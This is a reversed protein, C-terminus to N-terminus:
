DERKWDTDRVWDHAPDYFQEDTGPQGGRWKMTNVMLKNRVKDMRDQWELRKDEDSEEPEDRALYYAERYPFMVANADQEITGSERLDALTPRKDDRGEVSRNLQSLLIVAIDENGALNKLGATMEGLVSAENRGNSKPRQMIQLYDIAVAALPGKRKLARVRERVYDVSLMTTDDLIFNQPVRWTLERVRELEEEDMVTGDMRDYSISRGHHRASLFSLSRASMEDRNMEVCMFAFQTEPNKEAAGMMICRALATKGMGPRGGIVILNGPQLGRMRYDTCRLGTMFGRAKGSRKQEDLKASFDEAATRADSVNTEDPAYGKAVDRIMDEAVGAAQHADAEPDVAFERITDAASALERRLSTAVVLKADESANLGWSKEMLEGFYPPGGMQHFAPDLRFQEALGNMTVLEGKDLRERMYAWLRKHFPESFHNPAVVTEIRAYLDNDYLVSGLLNHEAELATPLPPKADSVEAM